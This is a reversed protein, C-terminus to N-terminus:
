KTEEIAVDDFLVKGKGRMQVVVYAGGQPDPTAKFDVVAQQWDGTGELIGQIKEFQGELILNRVVTDANLIENSPM